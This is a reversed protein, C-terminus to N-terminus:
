SLFYKRPKLDERYPRVSRLADFVDSITVIESCVHEDVSM